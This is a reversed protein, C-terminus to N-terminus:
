KKCFYAVMRSYINDQTPNKMMSVITQEVNKNGQLSMTEDKERDKNTILVMNSYGADLYIRLRDAVKENSLPKIASGPGRIAFLDAGFYIKSCQALERKWQDKDVREKRNLM